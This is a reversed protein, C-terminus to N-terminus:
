GGPYTSVRYIPEVEDRCQGTQLTGLVIERSDVNEYPFYISPEPEHFPLDSVEKIYFFRFRSGPLHGSLPFHVSEVVTRQVLLCTSFSRVCLVSTPTTSSWLRLPRRPDSGPFLYVSLTVRSLFWLFVSFPDLPDTVSSLFVVRRSSPCTSPPSRTPVEYFSSLCSRFLPFPPTRVHRPSPPGPGYPDRPISFHRPLLM